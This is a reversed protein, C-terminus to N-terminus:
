QQHFQSCRRQSQCQQGHCVDWSSISTLTLSVVPPTCTSWAWGTFAWVMFFVFLAGYWVCGDEGNSRAILNLLPFLAITVPWLLMSFRYMRMFGYRRELYPYPILALIQTVARFSMHIGISAGSLALGGREVPMFAFIPYVAFLM